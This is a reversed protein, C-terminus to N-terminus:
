LQRGQVGFLENEWEEAEEKRKSRNSGKGRRSCLGRDEKDKWQGLSGVVRSPWKLDFPKAM